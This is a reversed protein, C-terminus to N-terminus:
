ARPARLARLANLITILDVVEQLTAGVIAPMVGTAAILM